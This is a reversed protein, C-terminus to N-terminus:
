APVPNWAMIDVNPTYAIEFGTFYKNTGKIITGM